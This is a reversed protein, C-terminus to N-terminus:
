ADSSTAQDAGAPRRRRLLVDALLLSFSAGGDLPAQVRGLHMPDDAPRVDAHDTTFGSRYGAARAAAAVRTDTKGHPYAIADILPGGAARAVADRGRTMADALEDDTLTPLPDHDHTHFGIEHGAEALAAVDASRLGASHPSPGALVRLRAAVERRGPADLAEVALGAAFIDAGAELGPIPLPGRGADVARQLDEWWFTFPADLSAGCLFFAARVGEEAMIPAAVRRHTDIDDDFTVAAPIRAGRKREEMADALGSLLVVDYHRRLHRIQSRFAAAGTSPLLERDEDGPPDGVRHYYVVLGVRRRSLRVAWRLLWAGPGAARHVLGRLRGSTRHALVRRVARRM